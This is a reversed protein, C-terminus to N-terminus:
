PPDDFAQQLSIGKWRVARAPGTHSSPPAADPNDEPHACLTPLAHMGARARTGGVTLANPLAALSVMQVQARRLM